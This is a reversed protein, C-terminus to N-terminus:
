PNSKLDAFVEHINGDPDAFFAARQGWPMDEPAKIPRAGKELLKAYDSDVSKPSDSRFALELPHGQQQSKYSQQGTISAMIENTSIAFRVGENEFEVYSDMELKIPFGLTKNYFDKMEQFKSTIVGIMDIKPQM